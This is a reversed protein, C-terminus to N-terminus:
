AYWRLRMSTRWLKETYKKRERKLYRAVQSRVRAIAVDNMEEMGTKKFITGIPIQVRSGTSASLVASALFILKIM